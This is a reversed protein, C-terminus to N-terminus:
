DQKRRTLGMVAARIIQWLASATAMAKGVEYKQARDGTETVALGFEAMPAPFRPSQRVYASVLDNGNTVGGTMGTLWVWWHATGPGATRSESPGWGRM